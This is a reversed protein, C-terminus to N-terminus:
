HHKDNPIAASQKCEKCMNKKSDGQISKNSLRRNWKWIKRRTRETRHTKRMDKLMRWSIYGELMKAGDDDDPEM